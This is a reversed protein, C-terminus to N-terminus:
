LLGARLILARSQMAQYGYGQADQWPCFGYRLRMQQYPKLLKWFIPAGVAGLAAFAAFYRRYLGAGWLMALFAFLYVLASGLDGEAVILLVMSGGHLCLGLLTLPHQLKERVQEIHASFTLLFLPKIIESPQVHYPYFPLVIWNRNGEGVGCFVTVILVAACGTYLLIPCLPLSRGFLSIKRAYFLRQWDLFIPVLALVLGVGIAFGQRYLLEPTDRLNGAVVLFGYASLLCVAYILM